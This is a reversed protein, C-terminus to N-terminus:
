CLGFPGLCPLAHALRGTGQGGDRGGGGSVLFAAECLRAMWEATEQPEAAFLYARESTDLRFAALGEKPVCDPAPAVSVCDALRVIKKDLRKTGVRDAAAAGEKGDFFELRAVGHPSAPYLVFWGKKWRQWSVCESCWPLLGEDGRSVRSAMGPPSSPSPSPSPLSARSLRPPPSGKGAQCRPAVVPRGPM